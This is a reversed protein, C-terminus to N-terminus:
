VFFHLFFKGSLFRINILYFDYYLSQLEFLQVVDCDYNMGQKCQDATIRCTIKRELNPRVHYDKWDQDGKNKVGLRVFMSVTTNIEHDGVPRATLRTDYLVEPIILTLMSSMWRSYDLQVGDRPLPM